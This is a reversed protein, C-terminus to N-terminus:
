PPYEKLIIYKGKVSNLNHINKDNCWTITNKNNDLLQSVNNITIDINNIVKLVINLKSFLEEM